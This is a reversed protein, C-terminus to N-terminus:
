VTMDLADNITGLYFAFLRFIVAIIMLGIVCWVALGGLMTLTALAAQARDGYQRALLAMSEVLKGTQEGVRLSDLFDTPYSGARSFADHNSNGASIEADILDIQDSFRANRSSRLSLRLARRVDMGANLTLHLTWALRALALTQLPPGLFPGRLAARQIPRTWVLGRSVARIFLFVIAGVAALFVVYIMLGTNGVLGLGLIDITTGTIEGILGMIWILFGIVCVALALQAVPWAISALFSRRLKLRNQYHDALQAFIEGLHGTQEGVEALERLLQPFFDGTAALADAISEGEAVARGVTELHLRAARGVPRQAERAWVTRVDIGAELSTALRRCLGALEKTSIRQSFLMGTLMGGFVM